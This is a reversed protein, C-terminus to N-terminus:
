GGKVLIYPKAQKKDEAGFVAASSFPLHVAGM